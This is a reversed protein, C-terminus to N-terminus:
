RRQFEPSGLALGVVQALGQLPPLQGLAQRRGPAVRREAQAGRPAMPQMLPETMPEAMLMSSTDRAANAELLPNKGTVLVSRMVPSVDGGLFATVVADVQTERPATRVSEVGPITLPNAGPLRGSAALLGFNIRNLIAGTGLWGDGTEPWGNPTQHGFYPQGLSAILQSTRVTNDPAANMARLASLVVEFPTKVKARYAEHSFFEPSTIITRVVERIDGDTRTFTAAARDVLAKSPTDSVFRRALKFAIFHATSPHRAVIDLLEEGDEIGRGAKLTHGLVVKEGADHMYPAFQFGGGQRPGAITWGTLARAANIVDQQTYGGDVGLTHLELLERGYNENLGGRLRRQLAQQVMAPPVTVANRGAARRRPARQAQALRRRAQAENVVVLRPRGSDAASEWNDLYYLMAPSKAVAGLLDRFKGLARPRVVQNEYEALYYRERIGKGAFVTFHNLWFDTMVEQLQRESQLARGVHAIQTEETMRRLKQQAQRVQMSDAASLQGQKLRAGLQTQLQGPNVYEAELQASTKNIVDFQSVWAETRADDIREPHLQADIWRDVGMQRVAQPDGPRAGFTLRSLAHAVQQDATQTRLAAAHADPAPLSAVRAGGGCAAGLLIGLTIILPPRRM